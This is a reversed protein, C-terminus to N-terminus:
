KEGKIPPSRKITSRFLANRNLTNIRNFMVYNLVSHGNYKDRECEDKHLYYNNCALILSLALWVLDFYCLLYVFALLIILDAVIVESTM